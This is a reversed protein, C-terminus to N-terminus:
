RASGQGQRGPAGELDALLRLATKEDTALVTPRVVTNGPGSLLMRVAPYKQEGGAVLIKDAAKDLKSPPISICINNLRQAIDDLARFGAETREGLVWFHNCVDGLMPGTPADDIRRKLEELITEIGKTYTSQSELPPYGTSVVGVGFVAIDPVRPGEWLDGILQPARAAIIDPAERQPHSALAFEVPWAKFDKALSNGLRDLLDDADFKREVDGTGWEKESLRAALSVVDIREQRWEEVALQELWETVYTPARGGGIGICDGERLRGWVYRAALAALRYHLRDSEAYADERTSADGSPPSGDAPADDARDILAERLGTAKALRIGLEILNQDAEGTLREVRVRILPNRPNRARQTLLRVDRAGRVPRRAQKLRDAAEVASLGQEYVLRAADVALDNLEDVSRKSSRDPSAGKGNNRRSQNAVARAGTPDAM